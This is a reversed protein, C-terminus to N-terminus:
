KCYLSDSRVQNYYRIIIGGILRALGPFKAFFQQLPRSCGREAVATMGDFGASGLLVRAWQRHALKPKSVVPTMTSFSYVLLDVFLKIWVEPFGRTLEPGCFTVRGKGERYTFATVWNDASSYIEQTGAPLVDRKYSWVWHRGKSSIESPFAPSFSADRFFERRPSDGNGKSHGFAHLAMGAGASFLQGGSRVFSVVAKKVKPPTLAGRHYPFVIGVHGVANCYEIIDDERKLETVNLQVDGTYARLAGILVQDSPKCASITVVGIDMEVIDM